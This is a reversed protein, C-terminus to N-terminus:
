RQGDAGVELNALPDPPGFLWGLRRAAVVTRNKPARQMSSAIHAGVNELPPLPAAWELAAYDDPRTKPAQGAPAWGYLDYARWALLARVEDHTDTLKAIFAPTIVINALSTYADPDTSVRYIHNVQTDPWRSAGLGNAWRFADFPSRNDDTMLPRGGVEVFEGPKGRITPFLAKGGTQAVTRPHSFVSLSAVAQAITRYRSAAILATLAAEGDFGFEALTRAHEAPTRSTAVTQVPARALAARVPRPAMAGAMLNNEATLGDAERFKRYLAVANRYSALNSRLNGNIPIRTPNPRARREDETSYRLGELVGKLHDASFHRDLDGFYSEVRTVRHLQSTVTGPEYGLARLWPEYDSRM